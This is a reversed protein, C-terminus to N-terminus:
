MNSRLVGIRLRLKDRRSTGLAELIKIRGFGRVSLMDGIQVEDGNSAETFNLTVAGREVAEQSKGRSLQCARAVVADLRLSPVSIDVPQYNPLPLSPIQSPRAVSVTARGVQHLHDYIYQGMTNTVFLYATADVIVIDGVMKRHLGLGLVSGLVDKHAIEGAIASLQLCDVAFDEATPYWNDPMILMRQRECGAYGGFSENVLGNKVTVSTTLYQERPTLFDTLYWNQQQHVQSCWDEANRVFPRERERVWAAQNM